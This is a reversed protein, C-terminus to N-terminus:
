ILLSRVKRGAPPPEPPEPELKTYGEHSRGKISEMFTTFGHGLPPRGSGGGPVRSSRM